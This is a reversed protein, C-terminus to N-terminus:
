HVYLTRVYLQVSTCYTRTRLYLQTILILTQFNRFEYMTCDGTCYQWSSGLNQIKRFLSKKTAGNDGTLFKVARM